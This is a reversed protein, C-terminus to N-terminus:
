SVRRFLEAKLTRYVNGSQDLLEGVMQLRDDVRTLIMRESYGSLNFVVAGRGERVRGNQTGWDCDDPSCNGWAHVALQDGEQSIVLKPTNVDGKKIDPHINVWTGEFRDVAQAGGPPHPVVAPADARLRIAQTLRPSLIRAKSIAARIERNGEATQALSHALVPDSLAADTLANAAARRVDPNDDEVAGAVVTALEKPFEGLQALFQVFQLALLRERANDSGLASLVQTVRDVRRQALEAETRDAAYNESVVLLVVPLLLGSLVKGLVDLRNWFVGPDDAM